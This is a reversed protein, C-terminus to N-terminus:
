AGYAEIWILHDIVAGVPRTYIEQREEAAAGNLDDLRAMVDAQAGDLDLCGSGQYYASEHPPLVLDVLVNHLLVAQPYTALRADRLAKTAVNALTQLETMIM